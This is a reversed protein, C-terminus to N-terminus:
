QDVDSLDIGTTGADDFELDLMDEFLSEDVEVVEGGEGSIFKIDSDYLSRDKEFLQRGTLKKPESEDVKVTKILEAREADFKVKWKIFSEVSVCTGEFRKQEAEEEERIKREIAERQRALRTESQISLQESLHSALTFIVPMGLNEACITKIESEFVSRDDVNVSDVIAIEPSQDPYHEHFKIELLLFPRFDDEDNTTPKIMLNFKPYPDESLVAIEDPYISTIAEIEQLQEEKISM